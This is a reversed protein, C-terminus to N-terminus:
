LIHQICTAVQLLCFKDYSSIFDVEHFNGELSSDVLILAKLHCSVKITCKKITCEELNASSTIIKDQESIDLSPQGSSDHEIKHQLM